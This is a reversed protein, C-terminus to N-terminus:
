CRFSSKCRMHRAKRRHLVHQTSLHLFLGQINFHQRGTGQIEPPWAIKVKNRFKFQHVPLYPFFLSSPLFPGFFHFFSRRKTKLKWGRQIERQFQSWDFQFNTGISLEPPRPSSEFWCNKASKEYVQLRAPFALALFLVLYKKFEYLGNSSNYQAPIVGNHEFFVVKKARFREQKWDIWFECPFTQLIFSFM